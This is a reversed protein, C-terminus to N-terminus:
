THDSVSQAVTVFDRVETTEVVAVFEMPTGDNADGVELFITRATSDFSIFWNIGLTAAMGWIQSALPLAVVGGDSAALAALEWATWYHSATPARGVVSFSIKWAAGTPMPPSTWLRVLAGDGRTACGTREVGRVNAFTRTQDMFPRVEGNAWDTLQEEQIQRGSVAISVTPKM